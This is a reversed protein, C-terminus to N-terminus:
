AAQKWPASPRMPLPWPTSVESETTSAATAETGLTVRECDGDVEGGADGADVGVGSLPQDLARM